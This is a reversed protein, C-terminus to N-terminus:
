NLSDDGPVLPDPPPPRDAPHLARREQDEIQAARLEDIRLELPAPLDLNRLAELITALSAEVRYAQEDDLNDLLDAAYSLIATTEVVTQTLLRRTARDM